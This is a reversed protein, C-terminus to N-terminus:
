WVGLSLLKRPRWQFHQHRVTIGSGNRICPPTHFCSDSFANYLSMYLWSHMICVICEHYLVYRLREGWRQSELFSPSMWQILWWLRCTTYQHLSALVAITIGNNWASAVLVASLLLILIINIIVHFSHLSDISIGNVYTIMSRFATHDKWATAM